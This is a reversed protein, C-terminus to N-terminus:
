NPGMPTLGITYDALDLRQDQGACTAKQIRGTRAELRRAGFVVGGAVSTCDCGPGPYCNQDASLQHRPDYAYYFRVGDHLPDRPVPDMYRALVDDISPSGCQPHQPDPSYIGKCEDHVGIFQGTQPIGENGDRPIPRTWNTGTGPYNGINDARYLDLALKIAQLDHTRKADRAKALGNMWGSLTMVSLTAIISTVVLLEALTFGNTRTHLTNM